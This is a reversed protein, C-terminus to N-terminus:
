PTNNSSFPIPDIPYVEVIGPMAMVRNPRVKNGLADVPAFVPRDITIIPATTTENKLQTIRYWHAHQADFLYGGKKLFPKTGPPAGTLNLTCQYDGSWGAVTFVQESQPSLARKHFVVVDVNATGQGGNTANPSKRVTLLWSYRPEYTELRFRSVVLTDLTGDSDTDVFFPSVVPIPTTWSITRAGTNISSATLERTLSQRGNQSFLVVRVRVPNTANLASNSTALDIASPVTISTPTSAVVTGKTATQWNDPLNGFAAAVDASLSGLPLLGNYRNIQYSPPPAGADNGFVGAVTALRPDTAGIPDVVFRGENVGDGNVGGGTDNQPNDRGGNPMGAVTNQIEHEAINGNFNPDHVLRPYLRILEEANLRLITANTLQTAQISRLVSIPFLTALSVVGISMVLLSILIESLTAGGRSSPAATAGWVFQFERVIRRRDRPQRSELKRM